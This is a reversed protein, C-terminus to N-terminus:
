GLKNKYSFKENIRKLTKHIEDTKYINDIKKLNNIKKKKYDSTVTKLDYIKKKNNDINRISLSEVENLGKEILLKTIKNYETNVKNKDFNNLLNKSKYICNESKGFKELLYRQNNSKILKEKNQPINEKIEENIKEVNKLIKTIKVAPEETNLINLSNNRYINKKQKQKNAIEQLIQRLPSKIKIKNLNNIQTQNIEDFNLNNEKKNNNLFKFNSYKKEINQINTKNNLNNDSENNDSKNDDIYENENIYILDKNKKVNSSKLPSTLENNRRNNSSYNKIDNIYKDDSSNNFSKYKLFNNYYIIRKNERKTDTSYGRLIKTKNRSYNNNINNYKIPNIKHFLSSNNKTIKNRSQNNCSDYKYNNNLLFSDFSSKIQTLSKKHNIIPNNYSKIKNYLTIIGKISLSIISDFINFLDNLIHPKIMIYEKREFYNQSRDNTNQRLYNFKFNNILCKKSKIEKLIELIFSEIKNKSETKQNNNM